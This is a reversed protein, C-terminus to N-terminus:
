LTQPAELSKALLHKKIGENEKPFDERYHAGRSEERVLASHTILKSVTLMHQTEILVENADDIDLIWEFQKLQELAKKLGTEQRVIGVYKWMLKKIKQRIVKVSALKYNPIEKTEQSPLPTNPITTKITNIIHEAARHGFVLGDLLSNSALRNAGHLGLSAVEGAAYLHAINTEGWTTTKLGGMCYHAAPSVPIYDRSINIGSELCRKYITPFREKVNKKVQDLDLYVAENTDEMEKFIARAVVDRPAMELQPHYKQMFREGKSNRLIAGEGRIAETILFISITKKDGQYLTTPHFQIFEMDTIKCGANIGLAMGDGTSVSRNTTYQYVQGCGGTSLVVAKALYTIPIKKQLAEFGICQKNEILLKTVFTSQNFTINPEKLARNGLTKVIEKGTTDKAHLIRRKSHAAEQSFDFNGNIKDFNAGMNILENVRSPGEEVLVKVAEKNCLGAGAELTDQYHLSPTDSKELAVAIGGQAYNSSSERITDKSLVIVKGHKALHLAASLGAIGCGIVLYDTKTTSM